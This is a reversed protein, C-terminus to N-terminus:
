GYFNKHAFSWDDHSLPIPGSTNNRGSNTQYVYPVKIQFAMPIHGYGIGILFLKKRGRYELALKKCADFDPEQPASSSIAQYQAKKRDYIYRPFYDIKSVTFRVATDGHLLTVTAPFVDTKDMYLNDKISCGLFLTNPYKSSVLTWDTPSTKFLFMGSSKYGVDFGFIKYVTITAQKQQQKFFKSSRMLATQCSKDSKNDKLARKGTQFITIYITNDGASIIYHRDPRITAYFWVILTIIGLIGAATFFFFLFSALTVLVFCMVEPKNSTYLWRAPHLSAGTWLNNFYNLM